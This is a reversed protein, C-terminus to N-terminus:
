RSASRSPRRRWLCTTDAPAGARHARPASARAGGVNRGRRAGRHPSWRSPGRRRQDLQERRLRTGSPLAGRRSGRRAAANASSRCGHYRTSLYLARLALPARRSGGAITGSASSPLNAAIVTGLVLEPLPDPPPPPPPPPRGFVRPPPARRPTPPAPECVCCRRRRARTSEHPEALMAAAAADLTGFSYVVLPLFICLILAIKSARLDPSGGPRPRRPVGRGQRSTLPSSSWPKLCSSSETFLVRQSTWPTGAAPRAGACIAAGGGGGVRAIASSGMTLSTKRRRCAACAPDRLATTAPRAGVEVLEERQAGAALM